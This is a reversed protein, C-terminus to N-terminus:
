APERWALRGSEYDQFAKLLESKNTMVFPGYRAVPERIPVGGLLLLRGGGPAGRLRVADGRGFIALQGNHIVDGDDGIRASGEFAYALVGNERAIPLTVDAGDALAWDQFIIPTHTGIAGKVGLADGAVVRVEALGDASTARPIAVASLEQYRPKSMKLKAPLNVWIQFGHVRGGQELLRRPAMEAHVIGGAATMWQVGGPGILGRHAASAEHEVEGELIYSGTEFGRHPHAPAGVAEGPAYDVPGLEDILLFPDAYDLGATPLPRRVVFGGGERQRHSPIIRQVGRTTSESMDGFTLSSRPLPRGGRVVARQVM